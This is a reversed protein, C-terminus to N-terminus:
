SIIAVILLSVLTVLVAAPVLLVAWWVVSAITWAFRGTARTTAVRLGLLGAILPALLYWTGTWGIGAVITIVALVFLIVLLETLERRSLHRSPDFGQSRRGAQRGGRSRAAVPAGLADRLGQTGNEDLGVMLRLVCYTADAAAGELRLPPGDGEVLTEEISDALASAGSRWDGSLAQFAPGGAFESGALIRLNEALITAHREPVGYVDGAVEFRVKM